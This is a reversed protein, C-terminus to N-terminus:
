FILSYKRGQSPKQSAKFNDIEQGLLKQYQEHMFGQFIGVDRNKRSAVLADFYDAKDEKFVIALPLDTRHQLHNMLLRSTRGNGDYFPHVTVLDFHAHFSTNLANMKEKPQSLFANLQAALSTVMRPVKDYNVPM